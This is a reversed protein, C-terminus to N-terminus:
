ALSLQRLELVQHHAQHRLSVVPAASVGHRGAGARGVGVQQGERHMRLVRVCTRHGPVGAPLQPPADKLLVGRVRVQEKIVRTQFGCLLVFYIQIM